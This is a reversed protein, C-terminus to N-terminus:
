ADLACLLAEIPAKDDASARAYIRWEESAASLDTVPKGGAEISATRIVPVFPDPQHWHKADVPQGDYHVYFLITRSAGRVRKEGFVVPVGGSTQWLATDLGRRKMMDQLLLANRQLAPADGHINPLSLLKIFEALIDARHTQAYDRVRAVYSPEAAAPVALLCLLGALIKGGFRM